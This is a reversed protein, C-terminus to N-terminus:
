ILADKDLTDEKFAANGAGTGSGTGGGAGSNALSAGVAAAAHGVHSASELGQMWYLMAFILVHLTICYGAFMNRSTRNSLVLRALSFVAKEPRSLKKYARAAERGRFATLPSASSSEYAPRFREEAAGGSAFASSAGSSPAPAYANASSRQYTSGHRTKEYLNLNDRQLSSVEQRLSSITQHQKQLESELESNKKKFRDRQAQVMPLIGSGGGVPEGSRLSELSASASAPINDFPSSRMSPDFGSIISSTPSSRRTRGSMTPAYGRGGAVSRASSFTNSAEQQLTTLDNELTANLQQTKQLEASTASATERLSELEAQLEQQAVRLEAMENSLKKNRALLLQELSDKGGTAPVGNSKHAGDALKEKSTDVDDDENSLEIAHFVELERKIDPYDRWQSLKAQLEEREQKLKQVENEFTKVRMEIRRVDSDKDVKAAELKRLLSGNATRLQVFDPEDELNIRKPANSSVEALEMRLQENRAQMEALRQSTRELDSTVIDLEAASAYSQRAGDGGTTDELRQSVEYNAKMEEVLRDQSAVREQLAKEKAEWDSKSEELVGKWTTEIEKAKADQSEELKKRTAREEQLRKEAIDLDRTLNSVQRKLQENETNLKPVTDESVLLADVSAELLPYPDPAESVPTYLALFGSTTRKEHGTLLDIYNQYVKLLSKIETLKEPDELKRFEKTKSALEKRQALADKQNQVLSTATADLEPMLAGLGVNRWASIARQFQNDDSALLTAAKPTTSTAALASPNTDEQGSLQAADVPVDM